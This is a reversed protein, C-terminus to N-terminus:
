VALNPWPAALAIDLERLRRSLDGPDPWGPWVPDHCLEPDRLLGGLVAQEAATLLRGNRALWDTIRAPDESRASRVLWVLM